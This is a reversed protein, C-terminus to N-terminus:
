PTPDSGAVLGALPDLGLVRCISQYGLDAVREVPAQWLQPNLLELSVAGGYGIERFRSVIPEWQYDGDGPLIRDSDGALERPVGALDSLQIWALNETNLYGLDELKSPGNYYHFVDFCVGLSGPVCGSQAILAITTDLSACFGAGRQFELALRIRREQAYQVARALEDTLQSLAGLDIGAPIDATVILTEVELEAILDLRRQFQSWAEDSAAGHTTFLGGQSAAGLPRLGRDSLHRRVEAIPHDKLFIELKTLWLEVARFGSREYGILDDEFSSHLTTAQSICPIM